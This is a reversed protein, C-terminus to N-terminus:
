TDKKDKNIWRAKAGAVGRLTSLERRKNGDSIESEIRSHVWLEKDSNTDFFEELISRNKLWVKKSMKCISSLKDDDNPLATGKDWYAMILLLYAGHQETTLHMTNSLYDGVYLPMWHGHNKVGM